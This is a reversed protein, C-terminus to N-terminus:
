GTVARAPRPLPVPLMALIGAARAQTVLLYGATSVPSAHGMLEQTLRRQVEPSKALRALREQTEPSLASM